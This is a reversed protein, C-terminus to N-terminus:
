SINTDGVLNIQATICYQTHIQKESDFKCLFNHGGQAFFCKVAVIYWEDCQSCHTHKM